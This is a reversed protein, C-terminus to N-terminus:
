AKRRERILKVANAIQSATTISDLPASSVKVGGMTSPVDVNGFAGAAGPSMPGMAPMAQAGTPDEAPAGSGSSMGAAPGASEQVAQSLAQQPNVLGLMELVQALAGEIAALRAEMDKAPKSTDGGGGSGGVGMEQMVQRVAGVLADHIEPPVGGAGTPSAAPPVNAAAPPPLSVAPGAGAAMPDAGGSMAPDMPPVGAPMPVGGGAAMPEFAQKYLGADLTSLNDLALAFLKNNMSRRGLRIVMGTTDPM